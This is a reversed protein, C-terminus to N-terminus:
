ASDVEQFLKALRAGSAEWSYTRARRKRAQISDPSSEGSQTVAEIARALAEVDGPDVLMAEDGAVERHAPIDSAIVPRGAALGELVPLGFGEYWSPYIVAHSSAYLGPLLRDDVYDLLIVRGNRELARAREVIDGASWGIGGAIVLPLSPPAPLLELAQFMMMHNKRPEITGVSLLFREPLGLSRTAQQDLPAANFFREDAANAIVTVREPGTGYLRVLDQKTSESVTVVAAAREVQRPVVNSLYRRLAEPAREPVVEFALDHVTVIGPSSFSPPVTFDPSYRVDHRGTWLEFPAPVRARFWLQDMRRRDFRSHKVSICTSGGFAEVALEAFRAGKDPDRAYFLALEIDPMARVVAPVLNRAYRGIGAGQNFASSYDVAIRM